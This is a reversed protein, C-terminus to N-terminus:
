SGEVSTSVCENICIPTAIYKAVMRLLKGDLNDIVPPEDNNICLLLKEVEEVGIQGFEFCWDKEKM